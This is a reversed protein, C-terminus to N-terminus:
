HQRQYDTKKFSQLVNKKFKQFEEESVKEDEEKQIIVQQIETTM